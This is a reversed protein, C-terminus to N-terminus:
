MKKTPHPIFHRRLKKVIHNQNSDYKLLNLIEDDDDPIGDDIWDHCLLVWYMGLCEYTMAMAKGDSLLDKPYFQFAPSKEIPM